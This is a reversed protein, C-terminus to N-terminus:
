QKNLSYFFQDIVATLMEPNRAEDINHLCLRLPTQDKDTFVKDFVKWNTRGNDTMQMTGKDLRLCTSAKKCWYALQAKTIGECPWYSATGCGYPNAMILGADEAAQFLQRAEATWLEHPMLSHWSDGTDIHLRGCDDYFPGEFEPKGITQKM